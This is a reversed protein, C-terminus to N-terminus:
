QVLAWDVSIVNGKTPLDWPLWAGTAATGDTMRRTFRLEVGNAGLYNTVPLLLELRTEGQPALDTAAQVAERGRVRAEARLAALAHGDYAIQNVLVLETRVDEVFVDLEEITLPGGAPACRPWVEVVDAPVAVVATGGPPLALGAAVRGPARAATATLLEAVNVTREIRNTLTVAGAAVAATVPGTRWPGAVFSNLRLQADV